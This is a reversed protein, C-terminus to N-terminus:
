EALLEDAIASFNFDPQGQRSYYTSFRSIIDRIFHSSIQIIPKTYDKKLIDLTLTLTYRFNIFGGEYFETKPLFHFYNNENNKISNELKRKKADKKTIGNLIGDIVNRTGEIECILIKDTKFIGQNRVVLDCMPSLIIYFKNNTINQIISGTKILNEFAPPSVYM